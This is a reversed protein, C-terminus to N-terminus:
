LAEQCTCGWYITGCRSCTSAQRIETKSPLWVTMVFLGVGGIVACTLALM